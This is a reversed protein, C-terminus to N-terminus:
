RVVGQLPALWVAAPNQVLGIARMEDPPMCRRAAWEGTRHKRWVAKSCFSEGCVVCQAHGAVPRVISSSSPTSLAGRAPSV